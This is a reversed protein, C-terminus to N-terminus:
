KGGIHVMLSFTTAFSTGQAARTSILLLQPPQQQNTDSVEAQLLVHNEDKM